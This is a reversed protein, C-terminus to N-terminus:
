SLKNPAKSYILGILIGFIGFQILLYFSEMLLFLKSDNIDQKAIFALVHSTWFFVGISLSYKLGRIIGSGQFSVFPYLWSLILGQILITLFGLLLNPEGEIYSLSRYQEEFM